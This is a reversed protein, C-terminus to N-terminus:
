FGIFWNRYKEHREHPLANTSGRLHAEPVPHPRKLM